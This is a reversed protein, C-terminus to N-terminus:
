KEHEKLFKQVLQPSIKSVGQKHMWEQLEMLFSGRKMQIAFTTKNLKAAIEENTLTPDALLICDDISFRVFHREVEGMVKKAEVIKEVGEFDSGFIKSLGDIFEKQKCEPIYIPAQFDLFNDKIQIIM